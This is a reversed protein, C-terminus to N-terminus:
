GIKKQVLKKPNLIKWSLEMKKSLRDVKNLKKLSSTIQDFDLHIANLYLEEQSFLLEINQHSVENAIV